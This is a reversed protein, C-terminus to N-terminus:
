ATKPNILEVGYLAPRVRDLFTRGSSRPIAVPASPISPHPARIRVAVAIRIHRVTPMDPYMQITLVSLEEPDLCCGKSTRPLIM